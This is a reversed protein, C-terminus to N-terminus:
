TQGSQALAYALNSEIAQDDPKLRAAAELQPLAQGPRGMELLVIGLAERGEPIQPAMRVAEAIRARAEELQGAQQAAYGARFAADAKKIADPDAPKGTQGFLAVGGAALVVALLAGPMRDTRRKKYFSRSARLGLAFEGLAVRLLRGM